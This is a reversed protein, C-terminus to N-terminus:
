RLRPAVVWHMAVGAFDSTLSGILNQTSNRPMRRWGIKCSNLKRECTGLIVQCRILPKM